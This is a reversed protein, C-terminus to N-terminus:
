PCSAPGNPSPAYRHTLEPFGSDFQKQEAFVHCIDHIPDGPPYFPLFRFTGAVTDAAQGVGNQVVVTTNASWEIWTCQWKIPCRTNVPANADHTDFAFTCTSAIDGDPARVVSTGISNSAGEASPCPEFDVAPDSSSVTNSENSGSSAERLLLVISALSVITLLAAGVIWLSKLHATSSVLRRANTPTAVQVSAAGPSEGSISTPLSTDDDNILGLVVAWTEVAWRAADETLGQSNALSKTLRDIVITKITSQSRSVILQQPVGVSIADLIVKSERAAHPCRDALIAKCFGYDQYLRVGYQHYLDVLNTRVSGNM